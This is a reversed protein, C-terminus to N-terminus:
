LAARTIRRRVSIKLRIKKKKFHCLSELRLNSLGIELVQGDLLGGELRLRVLRSNKYSGRGNCARCHPDSGMCDPCLTRAIVPLCVVLPENVEWEELPVEIDYDIRLIFRRDRGRFQKRLLGRRALDAVNGPYLLRAPSIIRIDDGGFAEPAPHGSDGAPSSQGSYFGNLPSRIFRLYQVNYHNRSDACSLIKYANYIELFKLGDGGADPHHLKALERFRSKVLAKGADIALGLAAYHDVFVSGTHSVSTHM